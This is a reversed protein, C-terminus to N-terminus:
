IGLREVRNLPQGSEDALPIPPQRSGTAISVTVLAILAFPVALLDAPWTSTTQM